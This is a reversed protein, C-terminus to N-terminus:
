NRKLYLFIRLYHYKILSYNSFFYSFHSRASIASLTAGLLNIFVSGQAMLSEMLHSRVLKRAALETAIASKKM